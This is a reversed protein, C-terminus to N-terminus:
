VRGADINVSDAASQGGLPALGHRLRAKNCKEDGPQLERCPSPRNSYVGCAVEAGVAGQLAQCRPSRRNTGAMCSYWSNVQETLREPLGLAEAEAWYFSVRFTACCAGCHLCPNGTDAHLETM